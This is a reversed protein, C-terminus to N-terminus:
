FRKDIMLIQKFLYEVYKKPYVSGFERTDLM